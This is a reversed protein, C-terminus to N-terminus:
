FLSGAWLCCFPVDATQSVLIVACYTNKQSSAPSPAQMDNDLFIWLFLNEFFKAVLIFEVNSPLIVSADLAVFEFIGREHSYCTAQLPGIKLYMKKKLCHPLQNEKM